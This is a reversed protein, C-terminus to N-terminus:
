LLIKEYTLFKYFVDQFISRGRLFFILPEEPSPASYFLMKFYLTDLTSFELFVYKKCFYITTIRYQLNKQFGGSM